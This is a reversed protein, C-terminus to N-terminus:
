VNRIDSPEVSNQALIPETVVPSVCPFRVTMRTGQGPISHVDIEAAYDELINKVTALGLGTGQGLPKTTFFPEFLRARVEPSIGGGSDAVSIFLGQDSRATKVVIMGSGPIADRANLLLNMLVQEIQSRDIVLSGADAALDLKLDISGSMLPKLLQCTERVIDNIEWQLPVTQRRRRVFALLRKTLEAGSQIATRIATAATNRTALDNAEQIVSLNVGTIHLLNNFDHAVGSAVLGLTELRQGSFLRQYVREREREAALREELLRIRAAALAVLPSMAVLYELQEATPPRIQEPGGYTGTGFTGLPGDVLILPINIITRNQLHDVYSRNPRPDTYADAIVVPGEGRLVQQSLEDGEIPIAQLFDAYRAHLESSLAVCNAFKREADFVYLWAHQYGTAAAIEVRVIEVLEEFTLATQIQQSFRLLRPFCSQDM